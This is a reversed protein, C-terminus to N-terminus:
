EGRRLRECAAKATAFDARPLMAITFRAPLKTLDPVHEVLEKYGKRGFGFVTMDQYSGDPEKQFPWAVYSDVERPEPEQHNILALGYPSEVAGFCAWPVVQSWPRDLTTRSGDPRLVFDGEPDLKGGPTGEYLFWYTPLGIKHLTMTAHDDFFDWACSSKGDRTASEIRVHEPERLTVRSTFPNDTKYQGFGYGGHFYKTPQGCKPLGRYEGRAKGGPAYSIWDHGDPDLISAFGAGSKGFLYTATPTVVKFCEVDGHLTAESVKVVGEPEEGAAGLLGLGLLTSLALIPTTRM